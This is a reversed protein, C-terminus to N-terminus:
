VRAAHRQNWGIQGPQRRGGGVVQPGSALGLYRRGGSTTETSTTAHVPWSTTLSVAAAASQFFINQEVCFRRRKVQACYWRCSCSFCYCARCPTINKYM